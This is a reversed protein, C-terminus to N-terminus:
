IFRWSRGRHKGNALHYNTLKPLKVDFLVNELLQESNGLVTKSPIKVKMQAFARISPSILLINRFTFMFGFEAQLSLLQM